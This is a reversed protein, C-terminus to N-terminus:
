HVPGSVACGIAPTTRDFQKDRASGDDECVVLGAASIGRTVPPSLGQSVPRIFGKRRRRQQPGVRRYRAYLRPGCCSVPVWGIDIWRPDQRFPRERSANTCLEFAGAGAAIDHRHTLLAGSVGRRGCRPAVFMRKESTPSAPSLPGSPPWSPISRNGRPTGNTSMADDPRAWPGLPLSGRSSMGSVKRPM